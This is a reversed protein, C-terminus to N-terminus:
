FPYGRKVNATFGPASYRQVGEVYTALVKIGMIDSPNNTMTRPNKDLIVFDAWKGFRLSGVEDDMFLQYAADLTVARIAEDITIQQEKGLVCPPNGSPQCSTQGARKQEQRTVATAIYRLPLVPTVPSDSNFSFRVRKDNLSRAPDIRQARASGLIAKHGPKGETSDVNTGFAYAWYYVHGITMSPTLGLKRIRDVQGENTVTLHEIRRIRM